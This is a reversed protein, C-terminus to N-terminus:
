KKEMMKKKMEEGWAKWIKLAKDYGPEGRAVVNLGGLEAKRGAEPDFFAILNGLAAERVILNPHDLFEILRDIATPDGKERSSYGRLLHAILDAEDEPVGKQTTIVDHSIATNGPDRPLWASVGVVAARRAYHRGREKLQDYLNAILTPTDPGDAIAAYGYIAFTSALANDRNEEYNIRAELLVRIGTRDTLKLAADSLAKQTAQGLEGAILPIRVTFPDNAEIAKPDPLTGSTSDWALESWTTLKNIKKFRSPANFAASGRVVVLRAETRPKEGGTRAYPTGPVFAKHAQVMVESRDNPLVVDWTESSFRIRIKAGGEKKLTTLYIRGAELTLDADFGPAPSHFRVLSQMVMAKMAVQEPVNGWLHVVVQSTLKVDAKYGPLAMVPDSTRVEPAKADLREWPLGPEPGRTLVISIADIMPNARDLGGIVERGALPPQVPEGLVPIPGKKDEVTDKKAEGPKGQDSVVSNTENKGDAPQPATKQDPGPAPTPQHALAFTERSREPPAPQAGPLAMWAALVLFAAVAVVAAIFGYRAAPSGPTTYRRMGLLLPADVDDAEAHVPEPLAVGGVPVTKGPKRDHDSFPPDVLRYMRLNASPPVRVPETLVLTLIQHCAAVEALHVDSALCTAELDRVQDSGLNDSLYEAVINPDSVDDESGDPIPVHLGRRRTVKKIREILLRADHSEAVKRGLERAQDPDLTDDIYALLTRLTLRIM